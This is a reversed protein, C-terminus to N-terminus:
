EFLHVNEGLIDGLERFSRIEYTIPLHLTNEKREPNYWCTAIGAAIGGKMDSTLSDGVLLCEERTIGKMQAFCADFYEKQPKVYGITESIFAGDIWQEMGSLKIKREQTQKVGNTVLYQHYGKAKLEQMLHESGDQFFYVSGLKDQYVAQMDKVSITTIGLKEFLSCFRGLLVEEKTIEGLELRKWYSDNIASYVAVTDTDIEIGFQLFSNRLAYDESKKFDLITQDIDWLITTFRKM